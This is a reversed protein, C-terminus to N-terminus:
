KELKILILRLAREATDTVLREANAVSKNLSIPGPAINLVADIGRQYIEQYEGALEGVIAVVPIQFAKAKAAVGAVTKGFLTQTDMRGEGTFVLTAEKLYDALGVAESVIEIVEQSVLWKSGHNPILVPCSVECNEGLQQIDKLIVVVVGNDGM